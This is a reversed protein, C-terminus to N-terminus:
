PGGSLYKGYINWGLMCVALFLFLTRGKYFPNTDPVYNAVWHLVLCLIFLIAWLM